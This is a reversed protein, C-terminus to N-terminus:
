RAMGAQRLLARVRERAAESRADREAEAEPTLPAPAPLGLRAERALQVRALDVYPRFRAPPPVALLDGAALDVARGVVAPDVGGYERRMRVLYGVFDEVRRGPALAEILARMQRDFGTETQTRM